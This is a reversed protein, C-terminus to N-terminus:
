ADACGALVRNREKTLVALARVKQTKVQPLGTNFDPIVM